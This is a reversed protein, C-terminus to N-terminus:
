LAGLSSNQKGQFQSLDLEDWKYTGSGALRVSEKLNDLNHLWDVASPLTPNGPVVFVDFILMMIM